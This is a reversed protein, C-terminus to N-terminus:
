RWPKFLALLPSVEKMITQARFLLIAESSAYEYAPRNKEPTVESSLDRLVQHQMLLKSTDHLNDTFTFGLTSSIESKSLTQFILGSFRNDM